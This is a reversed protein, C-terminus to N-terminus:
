FGMCCKPVRRYGRRHSFYTASFIFYFYFYDCIYHVSREAAVGLPLACVGSPGVNEWCVISEEHVGYKVYHVGELPQGAQVQRLRSM